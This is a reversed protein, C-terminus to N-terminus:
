SVGRRCCPRWKGGDGYEGRCPQEPHIPLPQHLLCDDATPCGCLHVLRWTWCRLAAMESASDGEAAVTFIVEARKATPSTLPAPRGPAARSKADRRM